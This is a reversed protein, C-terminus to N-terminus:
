KFKVIDGDISCSIGKLKDIKGDGDIDYLFEKTRSQGALKYIDKCKGDELTFFIWGFKSNEFNVAYYIPKNPKIDVKKWGFPGMAKINKKSTDGLLQYTDGNLLTFTWNSKEDKSFEYKAFTGSIQYKGSNKSMVEKVIEDSTMAGALLSSLSLSLITLSYLRMDRKREIPIFDFFL